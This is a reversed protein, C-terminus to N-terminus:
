GPEANSISLLHILQRRTAFVEMCVNITRNHQIEIQAIAFEVFEWLLQTKTKTQHCWCEVVLLVGWMWLCNIMGNEIRPCFVNRCPWCDAHITYHFSSFWRFSTSLLSYGAFVFGAFRNWNSAEFIVTLFIATTTTAAPRDESKSASESQIISINVNMDVTPVGRM